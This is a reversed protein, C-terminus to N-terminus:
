APLLGDDDPELDENISGYGLKRSIDLVDVQSYKVPKANAFDEPLKPRFDAFDFEMKFQTRLALLAKLKVRDSVPKDSNQTEEVFDQACAPAHVLRLLIGIAHVIWAKGM